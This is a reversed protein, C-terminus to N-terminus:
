ATRGIQPAPRTMQRALEIEVTLQYIRAQLQAREALLGHLVTQTEAEAGKM